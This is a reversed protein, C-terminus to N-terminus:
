RRLSVQDMPGKAAYSATERLMSASVTSTPNARVNENQGTKRKGLSTPRDSPPEGRGPSLMGRVLPEHIAALKRAVAM